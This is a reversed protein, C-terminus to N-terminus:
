VSSGLYLAQFCEKDLELVRTWGAVAERVGPRLVQVRFTSGQVGLVWILSESLVKNQPDKHYPDYWKPTSYKPGRNESVGM